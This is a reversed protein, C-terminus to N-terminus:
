TTREQERFLEIRAQGVIAERETWPLTTWALLRERHAELLASHNEATKDAEFRALAARHKEQAEEYLRTFTKNDAMGKKHCNRAM